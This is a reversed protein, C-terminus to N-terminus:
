DLSIKNIPQKAAIDLLEEVTKLVVADYHSKVEETTQDAAKTQVGLQHVHTIVDKM